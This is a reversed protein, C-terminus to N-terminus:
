GLICKLSETSLATRTAQVNAKEAGVLLEVWNCVINDPM